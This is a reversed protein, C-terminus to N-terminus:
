KSENSASVIIRKLAELARQHQSKITNYSKGLVEAIENLSLDDKYRMLLIIRYHDPIKKLLEELNDQAEAQSLLEDPLIAEDSINDLQSNGDEDEFASFPITKKKKLYDFATNKAIAFIWAKFSKSNDYRKLNKWAKVFTEQTLDDLVARDSVFRFLFNYVPKLYKRVLEQFALDDGDLFVEVLKKDEPDM